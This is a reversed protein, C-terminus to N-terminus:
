GRAEFVVEFTAGPGPEIQLRGGIQRALDPALRLGLSALGELQFGPPLGAGNDAVRLRLGAGGEAPELLVRVQGPRGAPFAHKIANSVLESVLLGCPIAQHIDVRAPALELRLQINAPRPALAHLLETCLQRLYAALDVQALDKSRYLHEHVLAMSRIRHQLDAFATKVAPHDIRTSQMRLLSSIVQLNNKVRHHIEKLLCEKERVSVELAEQAQDILRGTRRATWGTLAVILVCAASATLAHRLAPNVAIHRGEIWTDSWGEVVILLLTGPLFARLLIGRMSNSHWARLPRIQPRLRAMLGAGALVFALATPLAVPIIPSGYLLPVGYLYGLLVVLNAGAGLLALVGGLAAAPGWREAALLLMLAGSELLFAGAAVPSMRGLPVPGFMENTRAMAREIGSDWVGAWDALVMLGLTATLIAAALALRRSLAQAPWRAQAFVGGGLLLFALATSPAMPIRNGWQGALLRAGLLWGALAALALGCVTATCCQALRQAAGPAGAKGNAVPEFGWPKIPM